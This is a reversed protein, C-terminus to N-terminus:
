KQARAAQAVRMLARHCGANSPFGTSKCSIEAETILDLAKFLSDKRWRRVQSQFQKKYKFIIPPRIMALAKEQPLGAEIKGIVFHLNQLHRQVARLIGVPNTGDNFAKEILKDLSQMNGDTAAYVVLDLSIAASDGICAMADSISIVNIKNSQTNVYLALKELEGRTLLRNSGLNNLLYALADSSISLDFRGLTEKIVSKLTNSDDEYCGIAAGRKSNEFLKRLSSRPNLNGSEAIVLTNNSSETLYSKFINSISDSAESVLIVRKGGTMSLQAAQDSLLPPNAKLENSSFSNVRFPDTINEVVTKALIQSREKILGQEPGFLLIGLIDPTPKQLFSNIRSGSIKV